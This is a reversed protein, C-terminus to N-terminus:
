LEHLLHSSCTFKVVVVLKFLKLSSLLCFFIVQLGYPFYLPAVMFNAIISSLNPRTPAVMFNAIICRVDPRTPPLVECDEDLEDHNHEQPQELLTFTKVIRIWNMM